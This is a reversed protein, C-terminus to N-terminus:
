PAAPAASVDAAANEYQTSVADALVGAGVVAVLALIVLLLAYEVSELGREDSIFRRLVTKM